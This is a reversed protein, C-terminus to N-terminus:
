PLRELGEMELPIEQIKCVEEIRSRVAGVLIGLDTHYFVMAPMVEDVMAYMKQHGRVVLVAQYYYTLKNPQFISRDVRRSVFGDLLRM